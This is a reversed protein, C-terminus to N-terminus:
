FYSKVPACFPFIIEKETPALLLSVISYPDMNERHPQGTGAKSGLVTLLIAMLGTGARRTECVAGIHIYTCDTQRERETKTERERERARERARARERERTRTSERDTPSQRQRERDREKKIYILIYM